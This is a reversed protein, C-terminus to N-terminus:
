KKVPKPYHVLLLRMVDSPTMTNLAFVSFDEDEVHLGHRVYLETEFIAEKPTEVTITGMIAFSEFIMPLRVSHREYDIEIRAGDHSGGIFLTIM